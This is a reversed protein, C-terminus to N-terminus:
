TRRNLSQTDVPGSVRKQTRQSQVLPQKREEPYQGSVALHKQATLLNILAFSVQLWHLNKQLGRYRAKVFSFNLKLTKFVHEVRSRAKSKIRSAERVEPWVQKSRWRRCTRDEAGPAHEALM